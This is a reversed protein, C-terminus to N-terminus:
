PKTNLLLAGNPNPMNDAKLSWPGITNPIEAGFDADSARLRRGVRANFDGLLWSSPTVLKDLQAYFKKRVVSSSSCPHAYSCILTVPRKSDHLLIAITMLRGDTEPIGRTATILHALRKHVAIGVGRHGSCEGYCFIEFNETTTSMFGNRRTEQLACM